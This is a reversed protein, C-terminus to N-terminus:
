GYIYKSVPYSFGWWLFIWYLQIDDVTLLSNQGLGGVVLRGAGDASELGCSCAAETAAISVVLAKLGDYGTRSGSYCRSGERSTMVCLRVGDRWSWFGCDALGM